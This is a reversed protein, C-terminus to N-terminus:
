GGGLSAPALAVEVAWQQVNTGGQADDQLPWEMVLVDGPQYVYSPYDKGDVRFLMDSNTVGMDPWSKELFDYQQSFDRSDVKLSLTGSGTPTGAATTFRAKAYVLVFKQPIWFRCISKQDTVDGMATGIGSVRIPVVSDPHPTWM